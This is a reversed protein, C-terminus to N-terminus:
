ADRRRVLWVGILLPVIWELTFWLYGMWPTLQSDSPLVATIQQGANSTFHTRIAHGWGGPLAQTIPPAVFLLGVVATIAGATHRLITGLAFGLMGSALVYLGGGLVARLVHPQSLTTAMHYHAWFPMSAFYAGFATITGVVTAIAAFVIAKATLVRIRDPVATLTTRISGSSYESCVVLVGLVAIALQGFVLGAMSNSTVDLSARDAASMKDLNTSALWALLTSVGITTVVLTLLTWWTSRLSTLKTWESHVVHGLGTGTRRDDIRAPRTATLTTV